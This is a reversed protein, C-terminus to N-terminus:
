SLGDKLNHNNINDITSMAAGYFSPFLTEATIGYLKCKDLIDGACERSISIKYLLNNTSKEMIQNIHKMESTSISWSAYNVITFVGDQFAMNVNGSRSPKIIEIGGLYSKNTVDLVWVSLSGTKNNLKLADSAAFYAAVYSRESWDLLRTPLGYHQALAMLQHFQVPPWTNNKRNFLLKNNSWNNLFIERVLESGGPIDLGINDCNELFRKLYLFEYEMTVAAKKKAIEPLINGRFLSPCLDWGSDGQGRYICELSNPIVHREPSLYDWFEQINECKIETYM